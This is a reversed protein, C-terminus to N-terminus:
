LPCLKKKAGRSINLVFRCRNLPCVMDKTTFYLYVTIQNEFTKIQCM